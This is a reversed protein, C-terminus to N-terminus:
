GPGPGQASSRMLRLVCWVAVGIIATWAGLLFVWGGLNLQPANM